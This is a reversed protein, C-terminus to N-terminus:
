DTDSTDALLHVRYENGTDRHSTPLEIRFLDSRKALFHYLGSYSAKLIALKGSAALHRGVNRSSSSGGSARLHRCVAGALEEEVKREEEEDKERLQRRGSGGSRSGSAAHGPPSVM